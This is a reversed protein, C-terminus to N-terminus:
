NEIFKGGLNNGDRGLGLSAMFHGGRPCAHLTPATPAFLSLPIKQELPCVEAEAKPNAINLHPHGAFLSKRRKRDERVIYAGTRNEFVTM